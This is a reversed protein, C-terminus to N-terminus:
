FIFGITHAPKRSRRFCLLSQLRWVSIFSCRRISGDSAKKRRIMLGAMIQLVFAVIKAFVLLFLRNERTWNLGATVIEPFLIIGPFEASLATCLWTLTWVMVRFWSHRYVLRMLVMMSGIQLLNLWVPPTPVGTIVKLGMIFAEMAWFPLIRRIRIESILKKDPDANGIELMLGCTIGDTTSILYQIFIILALPM